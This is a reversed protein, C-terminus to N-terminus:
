RGASRHCSKPLTDQKRYRAGLYLMDSVCFAGNEHWAGAYDGWRGSPISGAGSASSVIKYKKLKTAGTPEIANPGSMLVPKFTVAYMTPTLGSNTAQTYTLVLYDTGGSILHVVQPYARESSGNTAGILEDSVTSGFREQALTTSDWAFYCIMSGKYEGNPPTFQNGCADTLSNGGYAM